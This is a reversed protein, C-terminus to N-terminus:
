DWPRQLCHRLEAEREETVWVTSVKSTALVMILFACTEAEECMCLARHSKEAARIQPVWSLFALEPSARVEESTREQRQVVSMEAIPTSFQSINEQANEVDSLGRATSM